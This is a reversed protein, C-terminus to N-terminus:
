STGVSRLIKIFDRELQLREVGTVLKVETVVARDAPFTYEVCNMALEIPLGCSGSRPKGAMSSSVKGTESKRNVDGARRPKTEPM